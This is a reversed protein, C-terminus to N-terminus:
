QPPQGTSSSNAISKTGGNQKWVSLKLSNRIKQKITLKKWVATGAGEKTDSMAMGFNIQTHVNM